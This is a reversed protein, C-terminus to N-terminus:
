KLGCEIWVSNLRSKFTNVNSSDFVCELLANWTEVVRISFSHLRFSTNSRQKSIKYKHVRTRAEDLLEFSISSNIRDTGNLIKFVRAAYRSAAKQVATFSPRAEKAKTPASNQLVQWARRQVGELRKQDRITIPCWIVLRILSKYLTVFVGECIRNIIGTMKNATNLSKIVHTEFSLGADM